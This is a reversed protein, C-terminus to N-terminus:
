FLAPIAVDLSQLLTRNSIYHCPHSVVGEAVFDDDFHLLSVLVAVSHTQLAEMVTERQAVSPATSPTAVSSKAALCCPGNFSYSSNM